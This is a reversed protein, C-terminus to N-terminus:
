ILKVIEVQIIVNVKTSNEICHSDKGQEHLRRHNNNVLQIYANQSCSINKM